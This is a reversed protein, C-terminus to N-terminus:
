QIPQWARQFDKSDIGQSARLQVTQREVGVTRFANGSSCDLLAVAVAQVDAALNANQAVFVDMVTSLTDSSQPGIPACVNVVLTSGLQTTQMSIDAESVNLDVLAGTLFAYPSIVEPVATPTAVLGGAMAEAPPLTSTADLGGAMAEASPLTSTVDGVSVTDSPVLTNLADDVVVLISPSTAQADPAASTDGDVVQAGITPEITVNEAVQLPMLLEAGADSLLFVGTGTLMALIIFAIIVLRPMKSSREAPEDETSQAPMPQTPQEISLQDFEDIVDTPNSIADRLERAGPYMPDLELVKSLARVGEEADEVAHAYVWWVTPNSANAQLIPSLILRAENLKNSEILQFARNLTDSVQNSM